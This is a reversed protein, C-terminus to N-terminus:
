VYSQTTEEEPTKVNEDEVVSVRDKVNPQKPLPICSALPVTVTVSALPLLFLPSQSTSNITVSIEHYVDAQIRFFLTSYHRYPISTINVRNGALASYPHSEFHVGQGVSLGRSPRLRRSRGTCRPGGLLGVRTQCLSRGEDHGMRRTGVGTAGGIQSSPLSTSIV